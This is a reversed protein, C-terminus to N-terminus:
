TFGKGIMWLIIYNLYQELQNVLTFADTGDFKKLELKPFNLKPGGGYNFGSNSNFGSSNKKNSTPKEVHISVKNVHTVKTVIDSKPLRVDLTQLIFIQLEAMNKDMLIKMKNEMQEMNEGM